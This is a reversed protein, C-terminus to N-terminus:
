SGGPALLGRVKQVLEAPTFPKALFPTGPELFGRISLVMEGYGSMYLVKLKPRQAALQRYLQPGTCGAIVFDTVVLVIEDFHKSFLELAGECSTTSLVSYGERELITSVLAKVAEQDEVILIKMRQAADSSIAAGAGAELVPLYVKLTTGKGPESYVFIAGGHQKVSGYVAALGLGTGQGVDKTTFFPDFIMEQVVRDMGIGNDAVALMVYRGPQVEFHTSNYAKDLIVNATEIVVTGGQPMADRANMVLNVLVQQIQGADALVEALEPAPKFRVEIRTGVLRCLMAIIKEIVSNLNLSAVQITHQRGFTLLQRTLDAARVVLQQIQTLDLRIKADIGEEALLLQAYSGIGALLNNFEHAVGATLRGVTEMRRAQLLQKELEGRVTNDFLYGKIEQLAGQSDFRGVINGVISLANGDRRVFHLEYNELKRSNCLNALLNEPPGPEPFLSWLNVALAEDVSNFGFIRAFSANCARLQGEPTAIFDGSLDEEFFLRYREESEALARETLKQRTIDRAVA